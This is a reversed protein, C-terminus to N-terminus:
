NKSIQFNVKFLKQWNSVKGQSAEEVCVKAGGEEGEWQHQQDVTVTSLDAPPSSFFIDANLDIRQREKRRFLTFFTLKVYPFWEEM